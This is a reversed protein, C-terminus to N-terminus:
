NNQPYMALCANRTDKKYLYYGVVFHSSDHMIYWKELSKPSFSYSEPM